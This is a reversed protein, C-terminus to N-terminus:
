RSDVLGGGLLNVVSAGVLRGVFQYAFVYHGLLLVVLDFALYNSLWVLSGSRLRLGRRFGLRSGLSEPEPLSVSAATLRLVLDRLAPQLPGSKIKQLCYQGPPTRSMGALLLLLLVTATGLQGDDRAVPARNNPPPLRPIQLQIEQGVCICTERSAPM